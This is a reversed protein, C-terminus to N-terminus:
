GATPQGPTHPQDDSASPQRCWISSDGAAALVSCCVCCCSLLGPDDVANIYARVLCETSNTASNAWAANSVLNASPVTPKKCCFCCRLLGTLTPNCLCRCATLDATRVRGAVAPATSPPAAPVLALLRSSAYPHCSAACRGFVLLLLRSPTSPNCSNDLYLLAPSAVLTLPPLKEVALREDAALTSLTIPTPLTTGGADTATNCGPVSSDYSGLVSTNPCMCLDGPQLKGGLLIAVLLFHACSACCAARCCHPGISPTLILSATAVSSKSILGLVLSPAYQSQSMNRPAM